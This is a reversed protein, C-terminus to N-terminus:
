NVPVFHELYCRMSDIGSRAISKGISSLEIGISAITKFVTLGFAIFVTPPNQELRFFFM